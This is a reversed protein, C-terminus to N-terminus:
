LRAIVSADRVPIIAQNARLGTAALKSIITM